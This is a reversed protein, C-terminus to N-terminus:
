EVGASIMTLKCGPMNARAGHAMGDGGGFVLGVAWCKDIAAKFGAPNSAETSTLIATWGADLPAVIEHVGATVPCLYSPKHYWRYAEYAGDALYDDNAEQFFATIMAPAPAAATQPLIAGGDPLDIRFKFRILKKGTLPGNHYELSHVQGSNATGDGVPFEFSATGDPNLTLTRSVGISRNVGDVIPGLTYDKWSMPDTPTPAGETNATQLAKDQRSRWYVYGGIAVAFALVALLITTNSTM